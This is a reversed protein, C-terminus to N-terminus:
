KPREYRPATEASTSSSFIETSSSRSSISRMSRCFGFCGHAVCKQDVAELGPRTQRYEVEKEPQQQAALSEVSEVTENQQASHGYRKQQRQAHDGYPPLQRRQRGIPEGPREGCRLSRLRRPRKVPPLQRTPNIGGSNDYGQQPNQPRQSGHTPQDTPSAAFSEIVTRNEDMHRLAHCGEAPPMPHNNRLLIQGSVASRDQGVFPGMHTQVVRCVQKQDVQGATQLPEIRGDPQQPAFQARDVFVFGVFGHEAASNIQPAVLQQQDAPSGASSFERNGVM